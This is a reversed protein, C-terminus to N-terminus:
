KDCTGEVGSLTDAIGMSIDEGDGSEYPMKCQIKIGIDQGFRDRFAKAM